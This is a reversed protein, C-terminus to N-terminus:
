SASQTLAFKLTWVITTAAKGAVQAIWTNASTTNNFISAVGIDDFNSKGSGNTGIMDQGPVTVNGSGDVQIIQIGAGSTRNGSTDHALIDVEIRGECNDPLTFSQVNVPTANTTTLQVITQTWLPGHAVGTGQTSGALVVANFKTTWGYTADGELTEDFAALRCGNPAPIYIGFTTTQTPDVVGNTLGGNVQSQFILACPTSPATFTATFAVYNITLSATITTAVQANDTSSCILSWGKVGASSGLAITVTSSATVNVGNLTSSANVTCLPSAM